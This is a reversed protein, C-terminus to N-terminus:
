ESVTLRDAELEQLNRDVPEKPLVDEPLLEVMEFIRDGPLLMIDISAV